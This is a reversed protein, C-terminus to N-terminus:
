KMFGKCFEISKAMDGRVDDNGFNGSYLAGVLQRAPAKTYDRPKPDNRLKGMEADTLFISDPRELEGFLANWDDEVMDAGLDGIYTQRLDSGSSLLTDLVRIARDPSVAKVENILGFFKKATEDEVFNAKFKEWRLGSM